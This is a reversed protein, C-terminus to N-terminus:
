IVPQSDQLCQNRKIDYAQQSMVLLRDSYSTYKHAHVGFMGCRRCYSRSYSRRIVAGRCTEADGIVQPPDQLWQQRHMHVGMTKTPPTGRTGSRRQASAM